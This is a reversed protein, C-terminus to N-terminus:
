EFEDPEEQELAADPSSEVPLGYSENLWYGLDIQQCRATCFPLTKSESKLFKKGCLSCTLLEPKAKQLM